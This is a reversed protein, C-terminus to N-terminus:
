LSLNLQRPQPTRTQTSRTSTSPRREILSLPRNDLIAKLLECWMPVRLRKTRHHALNTIKYSM